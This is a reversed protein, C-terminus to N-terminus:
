DFQPTAMGRLAHRSGDVAAIRHRRALTPCWAGRVAGREGGASLCAVHEEGSRDADERPSLVFEHPVLVLNLPLGLEFGFPLRVFGDAFRALGHAGSPTLGFFDGVPDLLM